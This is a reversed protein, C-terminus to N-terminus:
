LRPFFGQPFQLMPCCLDHRGFSSPLRHVQLQSRASSTRSSTPLFTHTARRIGGHIGHLDKINVHVGLGHGFCCWLLPSICTWLGLRTCRELGRQTCANRGSFSVGRVSVSDFPTRPHTLLTSALISSGTLLTLVAFFKWPM